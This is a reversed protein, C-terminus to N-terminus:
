IRKKKKVDIPTKIEEDLNGIVLSFFFIYNKIVQGIRHEFKTASIKSQCCMRLQLEKLGCM